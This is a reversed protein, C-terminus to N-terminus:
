RWHSHRDIFAQRAARAHAIQMAQLAKPLKPPVFIPVPKYSQGAGDSTSMCIPEGNKYGVVHCASATGAFAILAGAASSMAFIMRAISM